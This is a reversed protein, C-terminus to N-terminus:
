FAFKPPRVFGPLLPINADFSPVHGWSEGRRTYVTGVGQGRENVVAVLRGGDALQNLLDQPVFEVAGDILIVNYRGQEPCGRTLDGSIVAANDIGLERLIASARANFDPDSELAVVTSCMRSLVAASYGTGCGVVLAVDDEEVAAAQLLRALVMPEMLYRGNGLDLDDDVYAIGRMHKPVFMERPIVEMAQVVLSDTVKNTRIQSEVMNHRAAAYDM